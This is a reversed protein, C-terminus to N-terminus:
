QDAYPLTIQSNFRMPLDSQIEYNNLLFYEIKM